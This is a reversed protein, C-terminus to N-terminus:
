TTLRVLPTNGILELVSKNAHWLVSPKVEEAGAAKHKLMAQRVEPCPYIPYLVAIQGVWWRDIPHRM